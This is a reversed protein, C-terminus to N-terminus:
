YMKEPAQPAARIIPAIDGTLTMVSTWNIEAEKNDRQGLDGALETALGPGCGLDEPEWALARDVM